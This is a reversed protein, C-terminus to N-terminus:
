VEMENVIHKIRELSQKLGRWEGDVSYIIVTKKKKNITFGVRAQNYGILPRVDYSVEWGSLNFGM